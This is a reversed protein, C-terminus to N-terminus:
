FIFGKYISTFKTAYIFFINHYTKYFLSKTKLFSILLSSKGSQPKGLFITFNSQNLLKTIEFSNLKEDLQCDVNFEPRNLKPMKNKKIQISM